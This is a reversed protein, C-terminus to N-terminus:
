VFGNDDGVAVEDVVAMGDGVAALADFDVMDVRFRNMTMPVTKPAKKSTSRPMMM